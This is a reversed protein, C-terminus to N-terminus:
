VESRSSKISSHFDAEQNVVAFTDATVSTCDGTFGFVIDWDTGVAGPDLIDFLAIIRVGFSEKGHEATIM